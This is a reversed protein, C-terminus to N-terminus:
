CTSPVSSNGGGGCISSEYAKRMWAGIQRGYPPNMFCVGHWDQELGNTDKDYYIPTKHNWDDACVDLTFGFERDLEDFLDAPTAWEDTASSMMGKNIQGMQGEKAKTPDAIVLGVAV